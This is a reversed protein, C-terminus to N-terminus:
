DLPDVFNDDDDAIWWELRRVIRDGVTFLLAMEVIEGEVYAGVAQTVFEPLSLVGIFAITEFIASDVVRGVLSSTLARVIYNNSKERLKAFAYNNTFSSFLFSTLSAISIRVSFGLVTSFADQGDWNPYAPLRVAALFLLMAVLNTCMAIVAVFNATRRGYLEMLMDSVIYSIPFVILGGDVPIGGLIWIKTACINSVILTAAMTATLIMLVRTSKSM